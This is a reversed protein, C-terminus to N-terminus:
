MRQNYMCILYDALEEKTQFYDTICHDIHPQEVKSGFAFVPKNVNHYTTIEYITGPSYLIVETNVIGINCKRLYVDNQAVISNSPFKLNENFDLTPDFFTFIESLVPHERFWKRWETAKHMKNIKHWFSIAGMLYLKM